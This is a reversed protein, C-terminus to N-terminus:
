LWLQGSKSGKGGFKKGVANRLATNIIDCYFVATQISQGLRLPRNVRLCSTWSGSQIAAIDFVTQESHGRESGLGFM